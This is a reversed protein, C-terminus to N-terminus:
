NILGFKVKSIQGFMVLVRWSNDINRAKIRGIVSASKAYALAKKM